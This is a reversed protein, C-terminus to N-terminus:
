TYASPVTYDGGNAVELVYGNLRNGVGMGFRHRWTSNEFPSQEDEAILSLGGRWLGTDEPDVRRYIPGPQDLHIGVMYTAPIWRWEVCWVGSARGIVKGPVTPLGEPIDTDDGVRIFRDPVETFGTLDKLYETADNNHFVVINEGGTGSGFHEELEDRITALPNNTDSIASVLYGSEAYHDETAGDDSGLVPPYVVTDGNALPEVSLTGHLPDEYSEQVNDLIAHLMEWRVTNTNRTVVGSIHRDLEQVTMYAMSVDDGGLEAGYDKLPFAVDWYGSVKVQGYRGRRDRQMLYGSGPLQYRMKFDSTTEELFISLARDLEANAAEVYATATEFIVQQGVTAAFVRDNDNLGLAGFIGAM